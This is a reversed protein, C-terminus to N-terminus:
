VWRGPGGHPDTRETNLANAYGLFIVKVALDPYDVRGV